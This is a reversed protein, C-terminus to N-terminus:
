EKYVWEHKEKDYISHQNPFDIYAQNNELRGVGGTKLIEEFVERGRSYIDDDPLMPTNFIEEFDTIKGKKDLKYKGGVGRKYGKPSRAPRKIYFYHTLNDRTTYYIWEFLPLQKIYYPRFSLEFRNESTAETPRVYIYTIIDVMVSDQRKKDLYKDVPYPNNSKKDEVSANSQHNADNQTNKSGCTTLFSTL